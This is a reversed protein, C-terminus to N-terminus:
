HEKRLEEVQHEGSWNQIIEIIVGRILRFIMSEQIFEKLNTPNQEKTNKLIQKEAM